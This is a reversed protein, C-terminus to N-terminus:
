PATGVAALAQGTGTSAGPRGAEELTKVTLVTVTSPDPEELGLRRAARELHKPSGLEAIELRLEGNRQQLEQAQRTLDDMRFSSQSIVAQIGAVAAILVGVVFLSVALFPLRRPRAARV